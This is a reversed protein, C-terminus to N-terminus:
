VLVLKGILVLPLIELTCLYLFLYHIPVRNKLLIKGSRILFLFYFLLMISGGTIILNQPNKVPSFGVLAVFPFLLLGLVRYYNSLNFQIESFERAGENIFGILGYVMKKLSFYIVVVGFCLLYLLYKRIGFGDSFSTAIQYIFVSAILYFYLELRYAGHILPYNKEGYMKIAAPYYFVSKMLNGLYKAYSTRISAFLLLALLLVFILWDNTAFQRRSGSLNLDKIKLEPTFYSNAEVPILYRSTDILMTQELKWRQYRSLVPFETLPTDKGPISTKIIGQAPVAKQTTKSLAPQDVSAYTTAPLNFYYDAGSSGARYNNFLVGMGASIGRFGKNL